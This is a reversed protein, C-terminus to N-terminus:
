PAKGSPGASVLLPVRPGCGAPAIRRKPGLTGKSHGRQGALRLRRPYVHRGAFITRAREIKAATPTRQGPLGCSGCIKIRHNMKGLAGQGPSDMSPWAAPHHMTTQLALRFRCLLLPLAGSTGRTQPPLPKGNLVSRLCLIRTQSLWLQYLCLAFEADTFSANVLQVLESQYM